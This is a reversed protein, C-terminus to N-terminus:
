IHLVCSNYRCTVHIALVHLNGQGMFLELFQNRYLHEGGKSFAQIKSSKSRGLYSSRDLFFYRFFIFILASFGVHVQCDKAYVVPSYYVNSITSFFSM